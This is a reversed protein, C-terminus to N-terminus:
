EAAIGSWQFSPGNNVDLSLVDTSVAFVIRLISLLSESSVATGTVLRIPAFYLLRLSKVAHQVTIQQFINSSMKEVYM